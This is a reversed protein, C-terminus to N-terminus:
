AVQGLKANESSFNPDGLIFIAQSKIIKNKM